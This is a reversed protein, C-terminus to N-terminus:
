NAAQRAYNGNQMVNLFQLGLEPQQSMANIVAWATERQQPDIGAFWNTFATVHEKIEVAVEADLGKLQSSGAAAGKNIIAALGEGAGKVLQGLGAMDLQGGEDRFGDLVQGIGSKSNKEDEMKEITRKLDSIEGEKIRIKEQNNEDKEMLRRVEGIALELKSKLDFLAYQVSAEDKPIPMGASPNLLELGFNKETSNEMNLEISENEESQRVAGLGQRKAWARKNQATRKCPACCYKKKVEPIPNNCDPNNCENEM